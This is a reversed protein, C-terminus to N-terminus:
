ALERAPPEISLNNLVALLLEETDALAATPTTATATYGRGDEAYYLQIQTIEGRDPPTWSFRRIIGQRGGFLETPGIGLEQYGEFERMLVEGQGEAYGETTM